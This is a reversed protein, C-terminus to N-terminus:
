WLTAKFLPLKDTLKLPTPMTTTPLLRLLLLRHLRHLRLLLLLLLLYLLTNSPPGLCFM